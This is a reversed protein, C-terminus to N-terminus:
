YTVLTTSKGKIRAIGDIIISFSSPWIGIFKEANRCILYDVLADIERGQPIDPFHDRWPISHVCNPYKKKIEDMVWDNKNKSKLLHTAIFITDYTSFLQSMANNYSDVIKNTSEEPSNCKSGLHPWDDELRLHVANYKADLYKSKCYDLIDYYQSKFPMDIHINARIVLLEHNTNYMAFLQGLDIYPDNDKALINVISELANNFLFIGKYKISWDCNDLNNGMQVQTNLKLEALVKNLQDIDVIESLPISSLSNYNPLFTPNYIIRKTLHGLTLANILHILQNLLGTPGLRDTDIKYYKNFESIKTDM